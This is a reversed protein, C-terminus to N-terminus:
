VYWRSRGLSPDLDSVKSWRPMDLVQWTKSGTLEYASSAMHKESGNSTRDVGNGNEEPEPASFM